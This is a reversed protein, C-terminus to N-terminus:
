SVLFRAPKSLSRASALDAPTNINMLAHNGLQIRMLSARLRRALQQLSFSKEELMEEIVTLSKAPLLFPFGVQDKTAVFLATRRGSARKLLRRLLEETVFPMDCSLFLVADAKSKKLATYAGGLPGCRPVLDKRLVRVPLRLKAATQKIQGLLTRSGLRLRAKDRGMRSSLGGTLIVVEVSRIARDIRPGLLHPSVICCYDKGRIARITM